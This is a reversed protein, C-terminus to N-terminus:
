TSNVPFPSHYNPDPLRGFSSWPPVVQTLPCTALVVDRRRPLTLPTNPTSEFPQRSSAPISHSPAPPLSPVPFQTTSSPVPVGAKRKQGAPSSELTRQSYHPRHVITSESPTKQKYFHRTSYARSSAIASSFAASM